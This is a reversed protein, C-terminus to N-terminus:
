RVSDPRAGRVAPGDRLQPACERQQEVDSAAYM